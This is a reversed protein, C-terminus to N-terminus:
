FNLFHILIKKNTFINNDNKFDLSNKFYQCVMKIIM